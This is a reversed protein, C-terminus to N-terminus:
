PTMTQQMAEVNAMLVNVDLVGFSILMVLLLMSALMMAVFCALHGLLVYLPTVDSGRSLANVRVWVCWFKWAVAITLAISAPLYVFLMAPIALSQSLLVFPALPLKPAGYYHLFVRMTQSFVLWNLVVFAFAIGVTRYQDLGLVPMFGQAEGVALVLLIAAMVVPSYHYETLPKFRMRLLQWADNIFNLM